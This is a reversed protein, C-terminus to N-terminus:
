AKMAEKFNKFPMFVVKKGAPIVIPEGNRPDRGNRKSRERVKLKGVGQLSIEGGGLLEAASIDAFAEVVCEVQLRSMPKEKGSKPLAAMISDIMEKKTM